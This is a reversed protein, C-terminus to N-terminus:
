LRIAEALIPVVPNYIKGIEEVHTLYDTALNRLVEPLWPQEHFEILHLRKM